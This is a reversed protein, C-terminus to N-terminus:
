AAESQRYLRLKNTLTRASIGLRKAAVTQNGYHDVAALIIEQETKSLERDLWKRPLDSEHDATRLIPKDEAPLHLVHTDIWPKDTLICARHIVNRLQRVNGAWYHSTLANTASATFGHIPETNEHKFQEVFYDALLPIDEPRERLPPLTLEIVNLRHFLDNRFRGSNVEVALDRNSSAIIRTDHVLAVSSGVREFQGTELVRLLKAQTALSVETIEDLFLSGGSAIEFRGVRQDVADTFSGKEHGFLESAVLQESLAACNLQIFCNTKRPSSDHILQAFLEKGTGSEGTILISASSSAARKALRILEKMQFSQSIIM